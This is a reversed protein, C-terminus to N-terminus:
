ASIRCSPHHSSRFHGRSGPRCGQSELLLSYPSPLGLPQHQHYRQDKKIELDERQVKGDKISKMWQDMRNKMKMRGHFALAGRGEKEAAGISGALAGKGVAASSRAHMGGVPMLTPSSRPCKGPWTTPSSRLDRKVRSM